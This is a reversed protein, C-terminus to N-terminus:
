LNNTAPPGNSWFVGYSGSFSKKFIIRHPHCLNLFYCGDPCGWLFVEWNIGSLVGMVDRRVIGKVAANEHKLKLGLDAVSCTPRTSVMNYHGFQSQTGLLLRLHLPAQFTIKVLNKNQLPLKGWWVARLLVIAHSKKEKFQVPWFFGDSTRTKVMLFVKSKPKTIWEAYEWYVYLKMGRVGRIRNM